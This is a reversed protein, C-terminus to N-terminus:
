AGSIEGTPSRRGSSDRTWAITRHLGDEWSIEPVWNLSDAARSIDLVNEPVDVARGPKYVTEVPKELITGLAEAVENVSRGIGSGINFLTEPGAHDLALRIARVVDDVFVYDRVTRGDGWIEIPEGNEIKELFAPILGQQGRLRQFPGYPNAVRLVISELGHLHRYLGLYKEITLRVVGYPNIPDTPATEAIPVAKPIGYVTGGSSIFVVRGIGHRLCSDFLSLTPLLNTVVDDTIDVTSSAPTTTSVLHIVADSGRIVSAVSAADAFDGTVWDVGDMADPFGLSRGYARVDVGRDVLQRCLNTGIFGGGGLVTVRM